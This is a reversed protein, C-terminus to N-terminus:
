EKFYNSDKINQITEDVWKEMHKTAQQVRGEECEVGLDKCQDLYEKEGVLSLYVMGMLCLCLFFLFWIFSKIKKLFLM